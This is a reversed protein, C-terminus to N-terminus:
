WAFLASKVPESAYMSSANHGIGAIVGISHMHTPYFTSLFDYYKIGRDLRNFGQLMASCTEDLSGENYNDLEGLFYYVDRNIYQQIIETTSFRSAYLNRDILGYKYDNYSNPCNGAFRYEPKMRASSRERYVPSEFLRDTQPHPRLENLYTYNSPNLVLFRFAADPFIEPSETSLAFMQTYQGGASHGTIIVHKLNPFKGETLVTNIIRDAVTFSSLQRGDNISTNGEKWGSNTWYLDDEEDPKDDDIKFFPSIILVNNEQNLSKAASLMARYRTEANRESGHVVFILKEVCNNTQNLSFNSHIEFNKNSLILTNNCNRECSSSCLTSLANKETIIFLLIAVYFIRM